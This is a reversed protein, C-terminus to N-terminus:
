FNSCGSLQGHFIMGLGVTSSLVLWSASNGFRSYISPQGHLVLGWVVTSHGFVFMRFYGPPPMSVTPLVAPLMVTGCCGLPYAGMRMADFAGRDPFPTGSM